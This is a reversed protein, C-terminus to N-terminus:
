DEFVIPEFEFFRWEIDTFNLQMVNEFYEKGIDNIQWNKWGVSFEIDKSSINDLGNDPFNRFYCYVHKSVRECDYQSVKVFM